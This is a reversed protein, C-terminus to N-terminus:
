KKEQMSNWAIKEIFEEASPIKGDPFHKIWEQHVQPDPNLMASSIADEIMRKVKWYSIGELKAIKQMAKKGKLNDGRKM